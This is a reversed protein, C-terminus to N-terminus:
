SPRLHARVSLTKGDITTRRALAATLGQEICTAACRHQERRMQLARTSLSCGQFCSPRANLGPTPLRFPPDKHEGHMSSQLVCSWWETDSGTKRHQLSIGAVLKHYDVEVGLPAM